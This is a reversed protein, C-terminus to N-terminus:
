CTSLRWYSRTACPPQLWLINQRQLLSRKSLMSKHCKCQPLFPACGGWQTDQVKKPLRIIASLIQAKKGSQLFHALLGEECFRLILRCLLHIIITGVSCIVFLSRFLAGLVVSIKVTTVEGLGLTRWLQPSRHTGAASTGPEVAPRLNRLCQM